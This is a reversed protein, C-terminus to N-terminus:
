QIETLDDDVKTLLDAVTRLRVEDDDGGGDRGKTDVGTTAAVTDGQQQQQQSASKAAVPQATAAPAAAGPEFRKRVASIMKFFWHVNLSNLILNSGVYLVFLWRPIADAGAAYARVAPPNGSAPNHAVWAPTPGDSLARWMDHYVWASMYVGYILRCSFFTAILAIGNYLQPRTGTMNLKDFFWHANLFPTSLEYLIFTCGYYNLFPRFGFSFVMLASSAHALLGLGFLHLNGLTIAFDWVFYGCALAAVMAAHPDYGWIREKWDGDMNRRVEDTAICRLALFNILLSQVLSVVHADWNLRKGRSMPGYIHPCLRNSLAPSVVRQVVTYFLAGIVVEHVHLPFAVLGLRNALPQVARSLAPIPPIPFPDSM